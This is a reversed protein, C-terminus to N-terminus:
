VLLQPAENGEDSAHIDSGTTGPTDTGSYDGSRGRSQAKALMPLAAIDAMVLSSLMVRRMKIDLNENMWKPRNGSGTLRTALPAACSRNVLNAGTKSM